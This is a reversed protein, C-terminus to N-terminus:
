NRDIELNQDSYGRASKPIDIAPRDLAVALMVSNTLNNPSNVQALQPSLPSFGGFVGFIGAIASAVVASGVWVLKLQWRRHRDISRFVEKTIEETSKESPPAVSHQIQGQLALLQTYLQKFNPDKDLWTQVQKVELASLEGDLYASLLEFSNPTSDEIGLYQDESSLDREFGESQSTM